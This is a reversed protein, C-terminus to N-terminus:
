ISKKEPFYDLYENKGINFIEIKTEDLQDESEEKIKNKEKIINLLKELNHIKDKLEKIEKDKESKINMFINILKDYKQM